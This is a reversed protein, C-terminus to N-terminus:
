YVQIAIRGLAQQMKSLLYKDTEKEAANAIADMADKGGLMKLYSVASDREDRDSCALRGTLVPFMAKDGIMALGYAAGTKVEDYNLLKKLIPTASEFTYNGKEICGLLSRMSLWRLDNQESEDMVIQSLAPLVTQDNVQALAQACQERVRFECRKDKLMELLVPIASKDGIFRLTCAADSRLRESEEKCKLIETLAPVAAKDALEGLEALAKQRVEHAEAKDKVQEILRPLGNKKSSVGMKTYDMAALGVEQPGVKVDMGNAYACLLCLTESLPIGDPAFMSIRPNFYFGALSKLGPASKVKLYISVGRKSPDPETTDQEKAMRNLRKIAESLTIGDFSINHMFISDLKKQTAVATRGPAVPPVDSGPQVVESIPASDSLKELVFGHPDRRAQLGSARAIQSVAQAIPASNLVLNVRPEPDPVKPIAIDFAEAGQERVSNRLFDAAETLTVAVFEVQDIIIKELADSDAPIVNKAPPAKPLRLVRQMTYLVHEDAEKEAAKAIAEMAENGGLMSLSYAARNRDQPNSSSLLDILIPLMSKDGTMALGCAAENKLSGNNLLKKLLPVASELTYNHTQLCRTLVEMALLKESKLEDENLLISGLSSIISSDNLEGLVYACQQRLQLAESKDKLVELLAPVASNDGIRLLASPTSTRVEISENKNKLVEILVPVASRVGLQSLRGIASQRIEVSADTGKLLEILQPANGSQRIEWAEREESQLPVLDVEQPGVQIKMGAAEAVSALALHLSVNAQSLNIKTEGSAEELPTEPESGPSTKAKLNISVGRKSPDPESMDHEKAKQNLFAVAEKLTTNKFAISPITISRLKKYVGESGGQTMIGSPTSSANGLASKMEAMVQQDAEKEAAKAIADMADNGGLMSLCHAASKRDQANSSSLLGILITLMSKDGTMALGCAAENKLWKSNLLARLLPVASKDTYNNIQLRRTLVGMLLLKENKPENEDLLISGLSPIITPDSLEGLAQACQQRVDFDENKDKLVELLAPVAANDAIQLLAAGAFSRVEINEKKNKLVEILVPVASRDRLKRLTEVASIRVRVSSDKCKLINILQPATGSRSTEWAKKEESQLPVFYVEQSGVKIKMGAAEAVYNLALHLSINEYLLNIKTEGFASALHTGQTESGLSSKEKLNISVGRRSPDPESTDQEKAQQNLFAIAERLTTNKFDISPITISALKKNIGLVKETQISATGRFSDDAIELVFGRSDSRSKLGFSAALYEVAQKIPIDCLSLSIHREPAPMKPIVIDFSAAGQRRAIKRLFWASQSLTTEHLDAQDIIIKAFPDSEVPSAGGPAQSQVNPAAGKGEQPKAVNEDAMLRPMSCLALGLVVPVFSTTATRLSILCRNRQEDIAARTRSEPTPRLLSGVLAFSRSAVHLAASLRRLAYTALSAALLIVSSKMLLESAALLLNSPTPMPPPPINPKQNPLM